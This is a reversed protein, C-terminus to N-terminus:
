AGAQKLRFQNVGQKKAKEAVGKKVSRYFSATVQADFTAASADAGLERLERAADRPKLWRGPHEKLFRLVAAQPKLGAYPGGPALPIQPGGDKAPHKTLLAISRDVVDIDAQIRQMDAALEARYARLEALAADRGTTRKMSVEKIRFAGYKRPDSGDVQQKTRILIGIDTPYVQTIEIPIGAYGQSQKEGHEIFNFHKM